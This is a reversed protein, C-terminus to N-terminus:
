LRLAVRAQGVLADMSALPNVVIGAEDMWGRANAANGTKFNLGNEVIAYLECQMGKDQQMNEKIRPWGLSLVRARDLSTVLSVSDFMRYVTNTLNQYGCDVRYSDGKLMYQYLLIGKDMFQWVGSDVWSAKMHRHLYM